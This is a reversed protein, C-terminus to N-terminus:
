LIDDAIEIVKDIEKNTMQPYIPLSISTNWAKESNIFGKKKLYLHLPMFIPRRVTVGKKQFASLKKDIKAVNGIVYRFFTHEKEPYSVPLLLGKESFAKNYKNAIIKRMKLFDPLRKLQIIGLGAQFDTMKFNFRPELDTKEDYNIYDIIFETYKKNNSLAMGGEGTTFPKTAYFSYISIEGWQGAKKGYCDASLTQACDEIVPIGFSCITKIDAPLGFLHPVIIAKTRTTIKKKTDEASINYDDSNCDAFVPKANSLTVANLVATCVYSPIIVEDNNKIKLALLALYLAATGSSVAAANKLGMFKSFYKEFLSVQTGAAIKGSALIKCVQEIESSGIFPKSHPIINMENM